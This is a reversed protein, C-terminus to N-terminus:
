PDQMSISLLMELKELPSAASGFFGVDTPDKFTM